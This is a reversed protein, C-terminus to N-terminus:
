EDKEEAADKGFLPKGLKELLKGAGSGAEQIIGGVEEIGKEMAERQAKPLRDGGADVVAACVSLVVQEIIDAVMVPESQDTGLKTLRIDGPSVPLVAGGIIHVNAKPNTIEILNVRFGKGGEGSEKTEEEERKGRKLRDVIVQFNYKRKKSELTTEMSDLLIKKVVITDSLLSGPDAHIECKKLKFLQPTRYGEPNKMELGQIVIKGTLISVSANEVKTEVGAVSTAALAITKGLYFKLIVLAAIVLVLALVVVRVVMKRIRAM